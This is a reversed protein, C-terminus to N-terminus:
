SDFVMFAHIYKIVYRVHGYEQTLDGPSGNGTGGHWVNHGYTIAYGMM